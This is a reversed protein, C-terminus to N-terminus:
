EPPHRKPRTSARTGAGVAFRMQLNRGATRPPKIRNVRRAKQTIRTAVQLFHGREDVM